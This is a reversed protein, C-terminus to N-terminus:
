RRFCGIVISCGGVLCTFTAGEVLPEVSALAAVMQQTLTRFCAMLWLSSSQTPPRHVLTTSMVITSSSSSANKNQSTPTSTGTGTSMVTTSEETSNSATGTSMLITSVTSSSSRPTPVGDRCYKKLQSQNGIHTASAMVLKAHPSLTNDKSPLINLQRSTHDATVDMDDWHVRWHEDDESSIVTGHMIRNVRRKKKPSTGSDNADVVEAHCLPGVAASFRTGVTINPKKKRKKEVSTSASSMIFYM